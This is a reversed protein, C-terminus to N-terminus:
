CSSMKQGKKRRRVLLLHIRVQKVGTVYTSAAKHGGCPWASLTFPDNSARPNCQPWSCFWWTLSVCVMCSEPWGTQESSVNNGTWLIKLWPPPSSSSSRLIQHIRSVPPSLFPPLEIEIIENIKLWKMLEANCEKIRTLKNQLPKRCFQGLRWVLPRGKTNLHLQFMSHNWLSTWLLIVTKQTRWYNCM